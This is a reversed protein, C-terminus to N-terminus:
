IMIELIVFISLLINLTILLLKRRKGLSNNIENLITLM